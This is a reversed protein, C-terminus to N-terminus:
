GNTPSPDKVERIRKIRDKGNVRYVYLSYDGQREYLTAPIEQQATSSYVMCDQM